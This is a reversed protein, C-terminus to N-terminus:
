FLSNSYGILTKRIKGAHKRQRNSTSELRKPISTNGKFEVYTRHSFNYIYSSFRETLYSYLFLQRPFNLDNENKMANVSSGVFVELTSTKTPQVRPRFVTSFIKILECFSLIPTSFWDITQQKKVTEILFYIGRISKGNEGGRSRLLNRDTFCRSLLCFINFEM